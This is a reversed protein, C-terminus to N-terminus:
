EEIAQSLSHAFSQESANPAEGLRRRRGAFVATGGAGTTGSPVARKRRLSRRPTEQPPPQSAPGGENSCSLQSPSERAIEERARAVFEEEVPFDAFNRAPPISTAQHLTTQRSRRVVPTERQHLTAQLSPREVPTNSPCRKQYTRKDKNHPKNFKGAQPLKSKDEDTGFKLISHYKVRLSWVSVMWESYKKKDDQFIYSARSKVHETGREFSEEIFSTTIDSDSTPIDLGDAAEMMEFIPRWANRHVSSIAKPLSSPSLKRFPRVPTHSM